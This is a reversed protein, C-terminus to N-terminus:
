KKILQEKFTNFSIREEIEEKIRKPQMYLFRKPYLKNEQYKIIVTNTSDSVTIIYWYKKLTVEIMNVGYEKTEIFKIKNNILFTKVKEYVNKTTM